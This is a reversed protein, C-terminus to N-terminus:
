QWLFTKHVFSVIFKDNILWNRKHVNHKYIWFNRLQWSWQANAGESHSFYLKWLNVWVQFRGKLTMISASAWHSCIKSVKRKISNLLAWKYWWEECYPSCCYRILQIFIIALCKPFPILPINKIINKDVKDLVLFNYYKSKAPLLYQSWIKTDTALLM